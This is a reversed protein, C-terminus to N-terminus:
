LKVRIEAAISSDVAVQTQGVQFVFAPRRQILRIPMGPLVGFAMLKQLREPDRTSLEAVHGAAGEPLDTLAPNASTSRGTPRQM